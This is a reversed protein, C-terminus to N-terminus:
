RSALGLLIPVTSRSVPLQMLRQIITAMSKHLQPETWGMLIDQVAQKPPAQAQGQAQGKGQGQMPVQSSSRMRQPQPVSPIM